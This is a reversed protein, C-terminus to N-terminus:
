TAFRRNAVCQGNLTDMCQRSMKDFRDTIKDWKFECAREQGMIALRMIEKNNNILKHIAAQLSEVNGPETKIAADGVVEACGHASTTIVACGASMAELLVVPFNEQISPFVFIKSSEYLSKLAEGQVFGLFQIRSNNRAHAKLKSLYPGDGAIMIEWHNEMDAVAELFFQVGKREFMRTVLLIRDKKGELGNQLFDYGNPIVTIPVDICRRILGKL